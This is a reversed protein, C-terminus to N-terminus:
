IAVAHVHLDAPCPPIIFPVSTYIDLSSTLPISALIINMKLMPLNKKIAAAGVL